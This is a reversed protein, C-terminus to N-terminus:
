KKSFLSKLFPHREITRILDPNDIRLTSRPAAPDKAKQMFVTQILRLYLDLDEFEPIPNGNAYCNRCWSKAGAPNMLDIAPTPDHFFIMGYEMIPFDDTVPAHDKVASLLTQYDSVFMGAIDTLSNIRIKVLDEQLEPSQVLKREASVPDLVIEADKRGVLICETKAGSLMIANPFVDIFSRVMSKIIPAPQQTLPLWQTLFGGSKLRGRVLEYFDRSYLSAIGAQKIPPPELTVLDYRDSKQMRLHQRGDNVFVSVRPDSLIDQNAESFYGAHELIHKSLDVVEINTVSSHLAAAHATNGVGFCIVLVDTPDRLHLLPIHSFARMYRQAQWYTSSMRHGNTILAKENGPLNLIVITELIGESTRVVRSGEFYSKRVGAMSSEHLREHSPLLFWQTLGAILMLSVMILAPKHLRGRIATTKVQSKALLLLPITVLLAVALLSLISWKMGLVPLLVFGSLLSGGLAGLTNALYLIGARRGVTHESTQVIANALPYAFGMFVSPVFILVLTPHLIVWINVLTGSFTSLQLPDPPEDFTYLGHEAFILFATLCTLTFLLQSFVYLDAPRRFFRACYGGGVSGIWIGVLIVMLLISYVSRLHGVASTLFRIWVIEMGMAAFGSLVIALIVFNFSRSRDGQVLQNDPVVRTPDRHPENGEIRLMWFAGSAALLNLLVAMGQAHFIGFNPIAFFDVLICGLAAGATNLGYLLGVHWAASSLNARVLFRILLTLTGGMLFTIPFVTFIAIVYRILYSSFTLYHWGHEGTSYATITSSLGELHILWLAIGLGLAAILVESVAYLKLACLPSQRYKKDAFSGIVYSGLGLGLMFIGIVISSSYITNGFVLGFQRIWIVQYVLGSIGSLFFILYIMLSLSQRGTEHETFARHRTEDCSATRDRPVSTGSSSTLGISRSPDSSM